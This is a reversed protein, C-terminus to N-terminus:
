LLFYNAISLPCHAALYMTECLLKKLKGVCLVSVDKSLSISIIRVHGDYMKVDDFGLKRLIYLLFYLHFSSFPGTELILARSSKWPWGPNSHHDKELKGRLSPMELLSKM